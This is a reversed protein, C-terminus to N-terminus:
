GNILKNRQQQQQLLNKKMNKNKFINRLLYLVKKKIKFEQKSSYGTPTQRQLRRLKSHHSAVKSEVCFFPFCFYM